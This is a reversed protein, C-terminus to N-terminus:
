VRGVRAYPVMGRGAVENHDEALGFAYNLPMVFSTHLLMGTNVTAHQSCQRLGYGAITDCHTCVTVCLPARHTM